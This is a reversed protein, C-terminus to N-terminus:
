ITFLFTFKEKFYKRNFLVPTGLTGAYSSAIIGKGTQDKLALMRGFLDSSIYPQDSVSLIVGDVPMPLIQRVGASIGSGMGVSWKENYLITVGMDM